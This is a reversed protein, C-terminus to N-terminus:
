SARIRKVPAPEDLLGESFVGGTRVATPADEFETLKTQRGVAPHAGTSFPLARLAAGQASAGHGRRPGPPAGHDGPQWPSACCRRTRYGGYVPRAADKLVRTREMHGKFPEEVYEAAAFPNGALFMAQAYERTHPLGPVVASTYECIGRAPREPEVAHAFHKTCNRDKILERRMREFIGDTRLADDIRQAVDPQPKRIAQEFRGIRGGSVCVRM